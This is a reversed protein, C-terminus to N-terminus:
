LMSEEFNALTSNYVGRRRVVSDVLQRYWRRPLFCRALQRILIPPAVSGLIGARVLFLLALLPRKASLHYALVTAQYGYYARQSIMPKVDRLWNMLEQYGSHRSTRNQESADNWIVLPENLMVFRTGSSAVRLCFDLDQGKRLTPDFQVKQALERPLVITSSQIFQNEAFLYEGVDEDSGISREPRLWYAAGGRRVYAQTYYAVDIERTSKAAFVELKKPLFYDDSDLFAIYDGIAANIGTNRAAGGGGNARWVYQFRDDRLGEVVRRLQEGDDSGDDVVICEFEPMTQQQVSVLTPLITAARNYVPVVISFLPGKAAKVTGTGLIAFQNPEQSM